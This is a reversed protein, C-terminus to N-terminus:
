NDGLYNAVLPMRRGRGFAKPSVRLIPAFQFRKWENSNVMKLIRYVLTKSYGFKIIMDPGQAMEIYRFLIDDLVDYPPLSDSDKQGPRLEASPAKEIINVPIIEKDSNIYRALEYIEMKYVDGIVSLGGCMDGYLTGYGVALESKNSTNLLIYGHKNSIAMLITGRIRAQINEEAVNFTTGAFNESLDHLYSNFTSEIPIITSKCGLSAIMKESDSVSHDSSYQSPMMVAMVNEPGLASCALALVVASDIGGSMGLIAKSFNMKHFYDRIGCVLAEHILAPKTQNVHSLPYGKIDKIASDFECYILDSQFAKGEQVINGSKNYVLSSGDFIIDTQAGSQNVYVLPLNYQLINQVLIRKRDGAHRYSFPSAAINIMLDPKEAILADMPWSSYLPDEDMNWLDECVTLAIKVGQHDICGSPTGPEFWRYEDFVDYTPLLSKNVVKKIKGDLLFFASNFLNKGKPDPNVSPGGVIVGIGNSHGAIVEVAQLCKENFHAYDLFDLPPYGCVSLEPFVILSAHNSKAEHIAKIIDRTNADFNGIHSNLQALAIKM